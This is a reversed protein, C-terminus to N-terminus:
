RGKFKGEQERSKWREQKDEADGGESSYAKGKGRRKGAAEQEWNRNM